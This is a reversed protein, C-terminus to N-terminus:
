PFFYLRINVNSSAANAGAAVDGITYVNLAGTIPAAASGDPYAALQASNKIRLFKHWFAKQAPTTTTQNLVITEDLLIKFRSKQGKAPFDTVTSNELVTALTATAADPNKDYVVIIRCKNASTAAKNALAVRLEIATMQIKNGTRTVITDGQAMSNAAIAVATTSIDSTDNTDFYHIEPVVSAPVRRASPRARKAVQTKKTPPQSTKRKM